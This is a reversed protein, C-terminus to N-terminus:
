KSRLWPVPDFPRGQHRLEFYLGSSENGGSAGVTAVVEGAHVADGVRRLVSENNGYISLYDDGHDLILLNGYGRLWEAFVVRGPAVAHVEDGEPARFFVGKPSPSAAPQPAGYRVVLEGRVPAPLRGKLKGFVGVAPASPSAAGPRPPPRVARSLERVLRALRAENKQAADLDRRAKRIDGSIRALVARREAATRRLAEREARAKAELAAREGAKARAAAELGALRALEARADRILEAQARAVYTEYVLRRSIAQPDDGSLLARLAGRDGQIYRAQVLRAIQSQRAELASRVAQSEAAIRAAEARLRDREAALERLTRNAQSIATESARLEDTAEVRAGESAALEKRLQEIRGRLAKLEDESPERAPADDIGAALAALVICAAPRIL